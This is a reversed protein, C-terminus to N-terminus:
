PARISQEVLASAINERDNLFDGVSRVTEGYNEAKKINSM